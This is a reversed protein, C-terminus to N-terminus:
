YDVWTIKYSSVRNAAPVVKLVDQTKNEGIWKQGEGNGHETFEGKWGKFLYIIDWQDQSWADFLAGGYLNYWGGEFLLHTTGNGDVAYGAISKLSKLKRVTTKDLSNKEDEGGVFVRENAVLGRTYITGNAGLVMKDGVKIDNNANIKKKITVNNADINTFIDNLKQGEVDLSNLVTETLISTNNSTNDFNEIAKRVGGVRVFLLFLIIFLFTIIINKNDLLHKLM